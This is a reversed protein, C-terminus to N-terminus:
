LGGGHVDHVAHVAHQNFGSDMIKQEIEADGKKYTVSAQSFSFPSVTMREGTPSAKEWGAVDPVVAQLDRFSVSRGAQRRLRASLGKAMAELGGAMDEASGQVHEPCEELM